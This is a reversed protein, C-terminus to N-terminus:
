PSFHLTKVAKNGHLNSSYAEKHIKGEEAHLVGAPM